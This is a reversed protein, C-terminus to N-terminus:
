GAHEQLIPFHHFLCVPMGLVEYELLIGTVYNLTATVIMNSAVSGFHHPIELLLEAFGQLVEDMQDEKQLFRKNFEAVSEADYQFVDDLYILFATYLAILIRTSEDKLHRYATTAM